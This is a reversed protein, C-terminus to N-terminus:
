HEFMKKFKQFDLDLIHRPEIGFAVVGEGLGSLNYKDLEATYTIKGLDDKQVEIVEFWANENIGGSWQVGCKVWMRNPINSRIQLSHLMFTSPYQNNMKEADLFQYKRSRGKGTKVKVPTTIIEM